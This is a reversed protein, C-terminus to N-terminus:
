MESVRRRYVQAAEKTESKVGTAVCQQPGEITLLQSPLCFLRLFQRCTSKPYTLAGGAAGEAVIVVVVNIM